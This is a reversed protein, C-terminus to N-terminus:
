VSSQAPPGEPDDEDGEGGSPDEPPTVPAKLQDGKLYDPSTVGMSMYIDVLGDVAFDAPKVWEAPLFFLGGGFPVPATPIMVAHYNRGQFPIPEPSPMLALVAAGGEGGFHCIVPSMAKLESDDRKGLMGILRKSANYITNVLPVRTMISDIFAHWRNKMGTEVLVGLFYILTLAAALGILYALFNSTVFNLGITELLNGFYSGPGLFKHLFQVLWGVLGITLALPFLALLGAVFPRTLSKLLNRIM